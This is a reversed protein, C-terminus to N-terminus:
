LNCHQNRVLVNEILSEWRSLFNNVSFRKINNIAKYSLKEREKKNNLLEIIANKFGSIDGDKIIRGSDENMMEESAGKISFAVCACGQSMAEMLVMPFGEMRSCLTFISSHAYLSKMDEVHGLLKVRRFLNRDSLMKEIFQQSQMDGDGAIELFWEPYKSEIESWIDLIIDFGKINWSELRGACLINKRREITENIVPFSM